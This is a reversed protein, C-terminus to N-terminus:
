QTTESLDIFAAKSLKGERRARKGEKGRGWGWGQERERKREGVRWIIGQAAERGQWAFLGDGKQTLVM